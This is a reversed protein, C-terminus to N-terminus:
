RRQLVGVGILLAVIGAVSGIAGRTFAKPAFQLDVEHAGGDVVVGLFDANVALPLAFRQDITATWGPDYRESLSLLQRGTATTAVRFHGPRDILIRTTGPAGDLPAVPAGVLATRALDIRRIDFVPNASVRVDTLLRARAIGDGVETVNLKTDFRRRAGALRYFGEDEWSLTTQPYLGAYGGVMQYGLLLPVNGWNPPGALRLPQGTDNPRMNMTFESLRVPWTRHIYYLGWAGLDIATLIVLLPLAAHVGRAALVLLVIAGCVALAEPLAQLFPASPMDAPMHILGLNITLLTLVSAAAYCALTAVVTRSM